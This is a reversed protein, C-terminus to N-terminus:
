AYAEHLLTRLTLFRPESPDFAEGNQDCVVWDDEIEPKTLTRWLGDQFEGFRNRGFVHVLLNRGHLVYRYTYNVSSRPRAYANAEFAQDLAQQMTLQKM